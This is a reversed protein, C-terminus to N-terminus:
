MNFVSSTRLFITLCTSPYIFRIFFEVLFNVLIDMKKMNGFTVQAYINRSILETTVLYEGLIGLFDKKLMMKKCKQCKVPYKDLEVEIECEKCSYTRM